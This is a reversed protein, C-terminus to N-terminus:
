LCESVPMRAGIVLLVAQEDMSAAPALALSVTRSQSGVVPWGVAVRSPWVLETSPTANEGSPRWSALVLASPVTRSQSAWSGAGIECSFSLPGSAASAHPGRM